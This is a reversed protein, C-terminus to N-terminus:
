NSKYGAMKMKIKLDNMDFMLSNKTLTDSFNKFNLYNDQHFERIEKSSLDNLYYVLTPDLKEYLIKYRSKLKLHSILDKM